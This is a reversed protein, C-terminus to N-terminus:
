NICNIKRKQLTFTVTVHVNEVIRKWLTVANRSSHEDVNMSSEHGNMVKNLSFNLFDAFCKRGTM